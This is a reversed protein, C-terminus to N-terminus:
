LQLANSMHNRTARAEGDKHSLAQNRESTFNRLDWLPSPLDSRSMLEFPVAVGYSYLGGPSIQGSDSVHLSHSTLTVSQLLLISVM